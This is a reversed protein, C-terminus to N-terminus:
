KFSVKLFDGMRLTWGAAESKQNTLIVSGVHSPENGDVAMGTATVCERTLGIKHSSEARSQWPVRVPARCIRKSCRFLKNALMLEQPIKVTSQKWGGTRLQSLLKAAM